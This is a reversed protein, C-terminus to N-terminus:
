LLVARHEDCAASHRRRFCNHEAILGLDCSELIRELCATFGYASEGEFELGGRHICQSLCYIIRFRRSERDVWAVLVGRFATIVLGDFEPVAAYVRREFM